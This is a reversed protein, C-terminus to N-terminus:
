YYCCNNSNIKLMKKNELSRITAVCNNKFSATGSGSPYFPFIKQFILSDDKPINSGQTGRNM